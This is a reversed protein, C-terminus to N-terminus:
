CPAVANCKIYALITPILLNAWNFIAPFKPAQKIFTQHGIGRSNKEMRLALLTASAINEKKLKASHSAYLSFDSLSASQIAAKGIRFL